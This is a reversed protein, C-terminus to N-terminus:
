SKEENESNEIVKEENKSQTHNEIKRLKSHHEIVKKM